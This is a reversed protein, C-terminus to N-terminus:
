PADHGPTSALVKEYIAKGDAPAFYEPLTAVLRFGGHRYFANTAAYQPRTSTEAYLREGGAGLVVRQVRALLSRGVGRGQWPPAVAIWYLHHSSVTAPVPGFCAYGVLEDGADALVFWYGSARGKRLHEDVLERAIAVEEGNFFGTAAVLAPVRGADTAGVEERLRIRGTDPRNM